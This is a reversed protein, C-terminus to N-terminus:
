RQSPTPALRGRKAQVHALSCSEGARKLHLKEVLRFYIAAGAVATVAHNREAPFFENLEAPGVPAIAPAAAIDLELRNRVQIRQDVEAVCLVKTRGLAAVARPRVLGARRRLVQHDLYRDARLDVVVVALKQQRVERLRALAHRQQATAVAPEAIRM